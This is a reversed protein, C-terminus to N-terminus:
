TKMPQNKSAQTLDKAWSLRVEPPIAVLRLREPTKLDHISTASM